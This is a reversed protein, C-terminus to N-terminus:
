VIVNTSVRMVDRVATGHQRLAKHALGAVKERYMSAARSHYKQQVDNTTCGHQRFFAVQVYHSM